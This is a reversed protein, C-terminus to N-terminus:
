YVGFLQFFEGLAEKKEHESLDALRKVADLPMPLEPGNYGESDLVALLHPCDMGGPLGCFPCHTHDSSGCSLTVPNLPDGTFECNTEASTEEHPDYQERTM